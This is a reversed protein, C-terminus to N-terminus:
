LTVITLHIIQTNTGRVYVDELNFFTLGDGGPAIIKAAAPGDELTFGYITASLNKDGVTVDANGTPSELMLWKVPRHKLAATEDSTLSQSNGNLTFNKSFIAM